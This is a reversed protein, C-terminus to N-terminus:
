IECIFKDKFIYNANIHQLSILKDKIRVLKFNPTTDIYKMVHYANWPKKEDVTITARILDTIKENGDKKGRFYKIVDILAKPINYIIILTIIM